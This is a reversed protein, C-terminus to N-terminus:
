ATPTEVRTGPHEAAWRAEVRDVRRHQTLVWVAGAAAALIAVAATIAGGAKTNPASCTCACWL